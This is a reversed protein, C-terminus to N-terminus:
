FLSGLPCPPWPISGGFGPSTDQEGVHACGDASPFLTNTAHLLAFSMTSTSAVDHVIFRRMGAPSPTYLRATVRSPFSSTPVFLRPFDTETMSMADPLSSAFIGVWRRTTCPTAM